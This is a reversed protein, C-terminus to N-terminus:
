QMYNAANNMEQGWKTGMPLRLLKCLPAPLDTGDQAECQQQYQAPVNCNPLPEEEHHNLWWHSSDAVVRQSGGISEGKPGNQGSFGQPIAQSVTSGYQQQGRRSM